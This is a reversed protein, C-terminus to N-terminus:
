LIVLFFYTQFLRQLGDQGIHVIFLVLMLTLDSRHRTLNQFDGPVFVRSEKTEFSLQGRDYFHM